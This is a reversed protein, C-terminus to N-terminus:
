MNDEDNKKKSKVKELSAKHKMNENHEFMKVKSLMNSYM